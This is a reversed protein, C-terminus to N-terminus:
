GYGFLHIVLDVTFVHKREHRLIVKASTGSANSAFITALGKSLPSEKEPSTSGPSSSTEAYLDDLGLASEDDVVM